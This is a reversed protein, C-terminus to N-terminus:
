VAPLPASTTTHTTARARSSCRWALSHSLWCMSLSKPNKRTSISSHDMLFESGAGRKLTTSCGLSHIFTILSLSSRESVSRTLNDHQVLYRSTVLVVGLNKFTKLGYLGEFSWQVVNYQPM